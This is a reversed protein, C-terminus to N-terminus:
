QPYIRPKHQIRNLAKQSYEPMLIGVYESDYKWDIKLGCYNKGSWDTTYTFTKFIAYLLHESDEKHVYKAGVDEM